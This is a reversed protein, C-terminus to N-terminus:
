LLPWFPIPARVTPASSAAGQEEEEDDESDQDPEEEAAHGEELWNPLLLSIRNAELSLKTILSAVPNGAAREDQACCWGVYTSHQM